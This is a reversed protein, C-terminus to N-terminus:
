IYLETKEIFEKIFGAIKDTIAEAFNKGKEANAFQPNGIGTDVSVEKWNRPLWFTRNNLAEISFQRTSGSGYNEHTKVLHPYYHMMLSTELEGAHDGPETFFKRADVIKYWDTTAILFNPCDVALDRVIGGFNNGGHGNLILMKRIGGRYLSSVIDTLIAKQTETRLHICFPFDTQGPNQSGFPITPLVVSKVGLNKAKAAAGLSIARSLLNDTTYPLHLNHPETAGCPLLAINFETSKVDSWTLEDINTM